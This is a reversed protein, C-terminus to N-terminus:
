KKSTGSCIDDSTFFLRDRGAAILLFKKPSYPTDSQGYRDDTIFASFSVGGSEVVHGSTHDSNDGEVYQAVGSVGLRAPYYLIPLFEKASNNIDSNTQYGGQAPDMLEESAKVPACEPRPYNGDADSFLSRALWQSGTFKDSSNSGLEDTYMQGPYFGNGDHYIRCGNALTAVRAATKANAAEKIAMGISPLLIGVLLAIISVVVLIEVLTFGIASKQIKNKGMM